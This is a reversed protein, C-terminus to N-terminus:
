DDDDDDDDRDRYRRWYDWRDDEDDEPELVQPIITFSDPFLGVAYLYYIKRRDLVFNAPGFIPDTSGPLALYVDYPLSAVDLSSGGPNTVNITTRIKKFYLNGEVVVDVSPAAAAHRVGLRAKSYKPRRLDIGFQSLSM